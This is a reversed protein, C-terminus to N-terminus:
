KLKIMNLNIMNLILKLFAPFMKPVWHSSVTTFGSFKKKRIEYNRHMKKGTKQSLVGEKTDQFDKHVKIKLMPSISIESLMNKVYFRNLSLLFCKWIM